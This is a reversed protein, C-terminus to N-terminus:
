KSLSEPATSRICRQYKFSIENSSSERKKLLLRVHARTAIKETAKSLAHERAGLGEFCEAIQIGQLPSLSRSRRRRKPPGKDLCSTINAHLSHGSESM